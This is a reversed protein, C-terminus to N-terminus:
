CYFFILDKPVSRIWSVSKRREEGRGGVGGSGGGEEKVGVGSPCFGFVETKRKEYRSM